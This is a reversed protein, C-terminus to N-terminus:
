RYDVHEVPGRGTASIIIIQGLEKLGEVLKLLMPVGPLYGLPSDGFYGFYKPQKDVYPHAIERNDYSKRKLPALYGAPVGPLMGNNRNDYTKRKLM